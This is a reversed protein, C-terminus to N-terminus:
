FLFCQWFSCSIVTMYNEVFVVILCSQRIKILLQSKHSCSELQFIESNECGPVGEPRRSSTVTVKGFLGNTGVAGCGARTGGERKRGELWMFGEPPHLFFWSLLIRGLVCPISPSETFEYFIKLGISPPKVLTLVGCVCTCHTRNLASVGM